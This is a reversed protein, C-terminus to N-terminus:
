LPRDMDQVRGRAVAGGAKVSTKVVPNGWYTVNGGQSISADLRGVPRVLIIGGQNVSATVGDVAFRRLDLMGGNAVRATLAPQPPFGGQVVLKGGENVAAADLIPTVVAIRPRPSHPSDGNDIVLRGGAGVTIRPSGALTEVRQAAGYRVLVEGGNRLEVSRFPAVAVPQSAAAGALTVLVCPIFRAFRM